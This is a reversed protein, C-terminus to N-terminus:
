LEAHVRLGATEALGFRLNMNQIAQGSAGKVLNDIVSFVFLQDDEVHLGIDCRNSGWVDATEPIGKERIGIFPKGAYYKKYVAIVEERGVPTKLAVSITAAIGRKMPALHPLFYVKTGPAAGDCEAQIEACHRHLTGPSYAGANETRECYLYKAETKKGAGSVGSFANIIAKPAILKEKVLPLLPLLSATTYCGPNAIIDAKKIAATHWEALGYVAGPLLDPRPAPAGYAKAFVAPDRFRFDASLDIVVSTGCFLGCVEGSKLHPLAAIVVDPKAKKAEDITVCTRDKTKVKDLAAASLAHDLEALKEGAQSSSAPIIEDVDPHELLVRVLLQGTYGTTGLVAANM